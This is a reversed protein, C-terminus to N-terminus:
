GSRGKGAPELPQLHLNGPTGPSLVHRLAVFVSRPYESRHAGTQLVGELVSGRDVVSHAGAGLDHAPTADTVHIRAPIQRKSELEGFQLHYHSQFLLHSPQITEPNHYASQGGDVIPM